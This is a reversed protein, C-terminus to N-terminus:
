LMWWGWGAVLAIAVGLWSLGRKRYQRVLHRPTLSSIILPRKRAPPLSLTHVPRHDYNHLIQKTAVEFAEDQAHQWEAMDIQGDGDTDFRRLLEQQDIKWQGLLLKRRQETQQEISPPLLSRFLGMAYLSDNLAIRQELYKYRNGGRVMAPQAEFAVVSMVPRRQYGFWVDAQRPSVQAGEVQIICGDGHEDELLFPSSSTQTEVRRWGGQDPKQEFIEYRYWLCPLGTLPAPQAPYDNLPKATGLLEVYGQAASRVSSTPTDEVLRAHRLKAMGTFLSVAFAAVFGFQTLWFVADPSM